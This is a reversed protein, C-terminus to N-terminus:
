CASASPWFVCGASFSWNSNPGSCVPVKHKLSGEGHTILRPFAARQILVAAEEERSVNGLDYSLGNVWNTTNKRAGAEAYVLTYPGPNLARPGPGLM